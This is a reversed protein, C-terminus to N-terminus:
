LERIRINRFEVWYGEETHSDQLGIYGSLPKNRIEPVQDQQVDVTETGDIIVKIRNNRCIIECTHWVDPAENPRPNAPVYGYLSGTCHLDDRPPQENSIQCEYGTEWPNGEDSCRIFVGSNGGPAVRYQLRLAFDKYLNRSRLWNGNRGGESRIVGSETISWGGSDGMVVWNEDLNKGDFLSVWSSMQKEPPVEPREVRFWSCSLLFLMLSLSVFSKWM